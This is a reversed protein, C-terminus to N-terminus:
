GLLRPRCFGSDGRLILRVAPWAQRLRKVLLALIAWSHKAADIKSPRLYAVLLQEGCFVYLPLFCHHDYYGHFFRGEQRGHVPVDTADFDLVIKRRHRLSHRLLSSM